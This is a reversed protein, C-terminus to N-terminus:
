GRSNNNRIQSTVEIIIENEVNMKKFLEPLCKLPLLNDPGLTVNIQRLGEVVEATVAQLLQALEGLHCWQGEDGRVFTLTVRARATGASVIEGSREVQSSQSPTDDGVRLLDQNLLDSLSNGQSDYLDFSDSEEYEDAFVGGEDQWSILTQKLKEKVSRDWGTFNAPKILGALSM